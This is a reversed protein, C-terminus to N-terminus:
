VTAGTADVWATGNWWIPRPPNLSFDFFCGGRQQHLDKNDYPLIVKGVSSYGNNLYIQALGYGNNGEVLPISTINSINGMLIIQDYVDSESYVAGKTGSVNAFSFNNGVILIYERIADTPLYYLIAWKKVFDFTNHTIKVDNSNAYLYIGALENGAHELIYNNAITVHGSLRGTESPGIYIVDGPMDINYIGDTSPQNSLYCGSIIVSLSGKIVVAARCYDIMCSNVQVSDENITYIGYGCGIITSNVLVLGCNYPSYASPDGSYIAYSLNAFRCNDINTNVTKTRKIGISEVSGNGDFECGSIGGERCSSLNIGISNTNIYFKCNKIFFSLHTTSTDTNFSSDIGINNNQVNIKLNEINVYERTFIQIKSECLADNGIISCKSNITISKGSVSGGDFELVCNAPIAIDEGLTFDYQIVYITNSKNVMPQVLTNVGNVLNKRLVVRGMGNDSGLTYEKEELAGGTVKDLTLGTKDDIIQDSGAVHGGVAANYLRSPIPSM